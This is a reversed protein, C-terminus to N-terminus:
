TDKTQEISKELATQETEFDKLMMDFHKNSLKGSVERITDLVLKNIVESRINHLSCKEEFKQHIIDKVVVTDIINNEEGEILKKWAPREFSGGSYGDDTFHLINTYGNKNAYDELMKKQNIISNSDGVMEDDRSLREYLATIKKNTAM